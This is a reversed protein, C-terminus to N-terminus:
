HGIVVNDVHAGDWGSPSSCHPGGAGSCLEDSYFRFRVQVPGGPSTFAVAKTEWGPWGYSRGSLRTITTWTTGNASWDVDVGDYGPETDLKIAFRLVTTGAQTTVQPSILSSNMLDIYSLGSIAYAHGSPDDVGNREGPAGRSWTPLGTTTWGQPGSEFDYSAYPQTITPPPPPPPPAPLNIKQDFAYTWVGRGYTAIVATNPDGPKLEISSIPVAPVDNLPAFQPTDLYAGRLDSAFAGLDTGVLVQQGRLGVWTAPVDPLNGSIDTFSQGGDTSRYLHGTGLAANTDGVAGPPV